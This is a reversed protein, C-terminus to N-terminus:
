CVGWQFCAATWAFEAPWCRHESPRVGFTKTLHNRFARNVYDLTRESLTAMIHCICTQLISFWGFISTHLLEHQLEKKWPLGFGACAQVSCTGKWGGTRNVETTLHLALTTHSLQSYQFGQCDKGSNQMFGLDQATRNSMEVFMFPSTAKCFTEGAM